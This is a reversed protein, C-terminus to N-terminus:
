SAASAASSRSLGGFIKLYKHGHTDTEEGDIPLPQSVTQWDAFERAEGVLEKMTAEQRPSEYLVFTDTNLVQLLNLKRVDREDTLPAHWNRDTDVLYTRPDYFLLCLRPSLPCYVQLGANAMGAYTLDREEKFRPNEFVVPAESTIFETETENELVVCELENNGIPALIGHLMMFHHVNQVTEEFFADELDAYNTPDYGAAAVEEQIGERFYDESSARIEDRMLRTRQRQTFAFSLLLRREGISLSRLTAGERLSNFAEAHAGELRSLVQEIYTEESNFYSRSCIKAIHESPIEREHELHYLPLTSNTAWGRLYSQPVYHQNKYPPM